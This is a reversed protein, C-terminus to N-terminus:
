AVADQEAEFAFGSAHGQIRGTVVDVREPLTFRRGGVMVLAGEAVLAKLLRRFTARESAAIDLRQFLARATEPGAAHSRIAHLLDHTTM